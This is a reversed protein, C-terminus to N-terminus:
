LGPVGEEASVKQAKDMLDRLRGHLSAVEPPMVVPEGDTASGGNFLDSVAALREELTGFEVAATPQARVARIIHSGMVQLAVALPPAIIFGTLGYADVMMVIVVIILVGSFQSRRFLRPEVVFELFALVAATLALAALATALGGASAMGFLFSLLAAFIFGVLPILWTVGALLGTLLPYDLGLLRYGIALLAVALFSQLFESRVYAGMTGETTQWVRRAQIRRGAPLLSLWLREFHSRDASWYLSLAIIVVLGAVITVANQTVGFLLQLIAGGAPGATLEDLQDPAPLRAIIAQQIASGASWARFTQDYLIVLYNSLIQLEQLLPDIILFLSIGLVGFVLLYVLARALSARLGRAELFEVSPRLAATLTLSLILLIVVSRFQWFLILLALTAAIVAAYFALRKM